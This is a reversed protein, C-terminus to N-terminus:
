PNGLCLSYLIVDKPWIDSGAQFKDFAFNLVLYSPDPGKFLNFLIKSLNLYSVSVVNRQACNELFM